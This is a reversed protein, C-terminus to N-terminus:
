KTVKSWRIKKQEQCTNIKCIEQQSTVTFIKVRFNSRDYFEITKYIKTHTVTVNKECYMTDKHEKGQNRFNTNADEIAEDAVDVMSTDERTNLFNMQNEVIQYYENVEMLSETNGSTSTCVTEVSHPQKSICAHSVSSSNAWTLQFIGKM